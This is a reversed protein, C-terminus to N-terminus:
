RKATGPKRGSNPRLFYEHEPDFREPIFKKPEHWELVDFHLSSFNVRLLSYTPIPVGSLEIDEKVIYLLSGDVPCNFRLTEDIVNGLYYASQLTKIFESQNKESM